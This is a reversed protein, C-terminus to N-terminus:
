DVSGRDPLFSLIEWCAGDFLARARAPMENQNARASLMRANSDTALVIIREPAALPLMPLSVLAQALITVSKGSRTRGHSVFTDHDVLIEIERVQNGTFPVANATM